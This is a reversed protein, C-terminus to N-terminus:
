ADREDFVTCRTNCQQIQGLMRGGGESLVLAQFCGPEAEIVSALLLTLGVVEGTSCQETVWARVAAAYPLSM